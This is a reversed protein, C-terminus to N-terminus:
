LRVASATDYQGLSCDLPIHTFLIRILEHVGIKLFTITKMTLYRGKIDEFSLFTLNIWARKSHIPFNVYHGRCNTEM